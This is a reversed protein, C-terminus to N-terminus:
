ESFNLSCRYLAALRVVGGSCSFDSHGLSMYNGRRLRTRDMVRRMVLLM